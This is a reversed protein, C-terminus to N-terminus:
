APAEAATRSADVALVLKGLAQGSEIRAHADGARELPLVDTVDLRLAQAEGGMDRIASAVQAATEERVDGVIVRAGGDALTRCIAAGLGSGGGTVLAVQKEIVGTM